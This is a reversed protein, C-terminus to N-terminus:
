SGKLILNQVLISFESITDLRNRNSFLCTGLMHELSMCGGRDGTGQGDWPSYTHKDPPFTGKVKQYMYHYTHQTFHAQSLSVCQM